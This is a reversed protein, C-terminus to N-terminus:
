VKKSLNHLISCNCRGEPPKFLSRIAGVLGFNEDPESATFYLTSSKKQNIGNKNRTTPRFKLARIGKIKLPVGTKSTLPGLFEGSRLKFANITGDGTNGILLAGGYPEFRDPAVAIGWPANLAGNSILNKILNGELTFVSVFGNGEGVVSYDNNVNQKAFTVYLEDKILQINYPAYGVPISPSTFSNVLQFRTDFVDIQANYFDAAYLFQSDAINAFTLGTYVAHNESRDIVVVANVPDLHKHYAFVKGNEATILYRAPFGELGKYLIFDSKSENLEIATPSSSISFEEELATGKSSYVKIFGSQSDVITLNGKSDFDMGWPAGLNTTSNSLIQIIEFGDSQEESSANLSFTFLFIFCIYLSSMKIQGKEMISKRHKFLNMKKITFSSKYVTTRSIDFIKKRRLQTFIKGFAILKRIKYIFDISKILWLPRRM